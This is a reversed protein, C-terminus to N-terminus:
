RQHFTYNGKIITFVDGDTLPYEKYPVMAEGQFRTGNRSDLDKLVYGGGSRFIEAHVRSAGESAEMYQAVEPSRGIIFSTRNLEIKEPNESGEERRELYPVAGERLKAQESAPAQENSLLMTAPDSVAANPYDEAAEIEAGDWEFEHIGAMVRKNPDIPAPNFRQFGGLKERKRGISPQLTGFGRSMGFEPGRLDQEEETEKEEVPDAGLKGAWILGNLAILLLTAIGCLILALRGPHDLYLYKWMLADLLVCGLLIYTKKPSHGDKGSQLTGSVAGPGMGDEEQWGRERDGERKDEERRGQFFSSGSMWEALPSAKDRSAEPSDAPSGSRGFFGNNVIPGIRQAPTKQGNDAFKHVAKDPFKERFPQEMPYEGTGMLPKAAAATEEHAMPHREGGDTLLESILQKWGRVTFEDEGCYHLLRQVGDGKLEGVSPMLAMILRKLSEGLSQVPEISELPVYTLYVKGRQLPGEIFIYDEHLAYQGPHLMHLRGDEMGQAIQLLLGYFEDLTLRVGKLLHSLLKKGSVAYELTVSLDVEKLFLRLHHPITLSSLMRCQVPNLRSVPMGERGGLVMRIGDQQVFDRTLGFM